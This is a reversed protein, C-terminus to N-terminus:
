GGPAPAKQPSKVVCKARCHLAKLLAKFISFNFAGSNRPGSRAPAVFSQHMIDRNHGRFKSTYASKRAGSLLNEFTQIVIILAPVVMQDKKLHQSLFIRFFIGPGFKEQVPYSQMIHLYSYFLITDRISFICSVAGM